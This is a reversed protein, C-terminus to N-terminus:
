FSYPDQTKNKKLFLHNSFVPHKTTSDDLLFCNRLMCEGCVARNTIYTYVHEQHGVEASASVGM